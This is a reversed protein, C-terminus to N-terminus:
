ISKLRSTHHSTLVGAVGDPYDTVTVADTAQVVVIPNCPPTTISDRIRALRGAKADIYYNFLSRVSSESLMRSM